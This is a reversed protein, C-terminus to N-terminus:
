IYDRYNNRYLICNTVTDMCGGGSALHVPIYSDTLMVQFFFVALLTIVVLKFFKHEDAPLVTSWLSPSPIKYLLEENNQMSYM